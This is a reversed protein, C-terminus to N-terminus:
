ILDDPFTYGAAPQPNPQQQQESAAGAMTRREEAPPFQITAVQEGDDDSELYVSELCETDSPEEPEDDLEEAQEDVSQDQQEEDQQEAQPATVQPTIARNEGYSFGLLWSVQQLGPVWPCDSLSRGAAHDDFGEQFINTFPASDIWPQPYKAMADRQAALLRELVTEPLPPPPPPPEEGVTRRNKGVPTAGSMADAVWQLVRETIQDCIGQGVGKPMKEALLRGDPCTARLKEFDGVTPTIEAIAEIKLRGLGRIGAGTLVMRMSHGYVVESDVPKPEPPKAEPEPKEKHGVLIEQLVVGYASAVEKAEKLRLRLQDIEQEIRQVELCAESYELRANSVREGLDSSDGATSPETGEEGDGVMAGATVEQEEGDVAPSKPEM